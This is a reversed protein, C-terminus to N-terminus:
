LDTKLYIVVMHLHMRMTVLMCGERWTVYAVKIPTFHWHSVKSVLCWISDVWISFCFINANILFSQCLKIYISPLWVWIIHKHTLSGWFQFYLVGWKRVAKIVQVANSGNWHWDPSCIYHQLREFVAGGRKKLNRPTPHSQLGSPVDTVIQGIAGARSSLHHYTHLIPLPFRLVSIIYKYKVQEM